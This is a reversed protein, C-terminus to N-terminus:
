TVRGTVSRDWMQQASVGILREQCQFSGGATLSLAETQGWSRAKSRVRTNRGAGHSVHAICTSHPASRRLMARRTCSSGFGFHSEAGAEAEDITSLQRVDADDIASLEKDDADDIASM